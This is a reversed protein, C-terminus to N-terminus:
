VSRSRRVARCIQPSTCRSGSCVCTAVPWPGPAASRTVELDFDTRGPRVVPAGAVTGELTAVERDRACPWSTAVWATALVHSWALGAVAAALLPWRRAAAMGAAILIVPVSAPGLAPLAHLAAAGSLFPIAWRWMAVARLLVAALM